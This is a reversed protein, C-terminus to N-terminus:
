GGGHVMCQEPDIASISSKLKEETQAFQDMAAQNSDRIGAECEDAKTTKWGTQPCEISLRTMLAEKAKQWATDNLRFKTRLKQKKSECESAFCHAKAPPNRTFGVSFYFETFLQRPSSDDTRKKLQLNVKSKKGVQIVGSPTLAAQLKNTWPDMREICMSWYVPGPCQNKLVIDYEKLHNAVQIKSKAKNDMCSFDVEEAYLYTIPIFAGTAFMVSFFVFKRFLTRV